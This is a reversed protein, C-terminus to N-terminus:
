PKHLDLDELYGKMRNLKLTCNYYKTLLTERCRPDNFGSAEVCDQWTSFRKKCKKDKVLLQDETCELHKENTRKAKWADFFNWSM